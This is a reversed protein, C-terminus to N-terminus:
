CDSGHDSEGITVRVDWYENNDDDKKMEMDVSPKATAGKSKKSKPADEVFGGDSDYDEAAARKRSAEKPM